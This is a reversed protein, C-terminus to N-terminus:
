SGVGGTGEKFVGREQFEGWALRLRAATEGILLQQWGALLAGFEVEDVFVANDYCTLPRKYGGRPHKEAGIAGHQLRRTIM